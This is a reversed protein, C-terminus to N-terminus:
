KKPTAKKIKSAKAKAKVEAEALKQATELAFAESESTLDFNPSKVVANVVFTLAGFESHEIEIGLGDAVVKVEAVTELLEKLATVFDAKLQNRDTQHIDVGNTATRLKRDKLQAIFTKMPNNGEREVKIIVSYM